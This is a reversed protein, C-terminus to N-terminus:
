VSSYVMTTVCVCFGCRYLFSGYSGTFSKVGTSCATRDAVTSTALLLAGNEVM